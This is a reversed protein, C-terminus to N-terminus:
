IKHIELGAKEAEEVFDDLYKQLEEENEGLMAKDDSYALFSLLREGIKFGNEHKDQINYIVTALVLCFLLASIKDGQKAGKMVDFFDTDGANTRVKARSNQYLM